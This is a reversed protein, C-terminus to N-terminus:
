STLAGSGYAHLQELSQPQLWSLQYTNQLKVKETQIQSFQVTKGANDLRTVPAFM